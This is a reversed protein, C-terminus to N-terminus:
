FKDNNTQILQNFRNKYENIELEDYLVVRLSKLYEEARVWERIKLDEILNQPLFLENTSNTAIEKWQTYGSHEPWWLYDPESDDVIRLDHHLHSKVFSNIFPLLEFLWRHDKNNIDATKICEEADFRDIQVGKIGVPSKSALDPPVPFKHIDLFEKSTM